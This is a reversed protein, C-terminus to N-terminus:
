RSLPSATSSPPVGLGFSDLEPSARVLQGAKARLFRGQAAFALVLLWFTLATPGGFGYISSETLEIVAVTVAVSVLPRPASGSRSALIIAIILSLFVVFGLIGTQSLVSLYTDHAALGGTVADTTHYGTGTIPAKTFRALLTEYITLRGSTPDNAVSPDRRFFTSLPTLVQPAAIVVIVIIFGASLLLPVIVRRATRALLLVLIGVVLALIAGRSGSAIMGVLLVALACVIAIRRVAYRLLYVGLMIMAASVIGAYNANSFLGRYRGYDPDLPWSQGALLGIVGVAQLVSLTWFLVLLDGRIVDVDVWRRTYTLVLFLTVGFLLLAQSLTDGPTISFGTTAIAWAAYLLLFAVLARDVRRSPAAKSSFITIGAAIVLPGFQLAYWISGNLFPLMPGSRLVSVAVSTAVMTRWVGLKHLLIAYICAGAIMAAVVPASLALWTLVGGAAAAVAYWGM